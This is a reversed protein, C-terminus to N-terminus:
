YENALKMPLKLYPWAPVGMSMWRALARASQDDLVISYIAGPVQYRTHGKSGPVTYCPLFCVGTIVIQRKFTIGAPTSNYSPTIDVTDGTIAVM